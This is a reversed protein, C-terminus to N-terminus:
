RSASAPAVPSAQTHGAQQRVKELLGSPIAKNRPQALFFFFGNDRMFVVFDTPTKPNSSGWFSAVGAADELSLEGDLFVYRHRPSTNTVRDFAGDGVDPLFRIPTGNYSIQIAGDRKGYVWYDFSEETSTSDKAGCLSVAVLGIVALFM